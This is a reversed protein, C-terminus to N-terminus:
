IFNNINSILPNNSQNCKSIFTNTRKSIIDKILQINTKSHLKSTKYYFPKNLILKLIKNQTTQLTRLHINACNGWVPSAYLLIPHFINKFILLKNNYNLKSKRNIFPYLIKIYKLTKLKTNQVHKSFILKKDLEIGLYKISDSWSIKHNNLQLQRHPLFRTTRRKTFFISKSKSENIKIKWKFYYKSIKQFSKELTNIIPRPHTNCTIINTDDAFQALTTNQPVKLDCTYINYLIPSLSSGQPLGAPIQFETSKEDYIQVYFYRTSLFSKIMKILPMPFNHKLLKHILGDHWTTDYAKENDLSIMGTSKHRLMNNKILKTVRYLQHTTSHAKRFGFQHNPIINNNDVHKNIRNLLVKELLKSISSLLSIPRYSSPNTPDKNEKQIAIIKAIKWNKPFYSQLICANILKTILVLARFPLKKLIFNQIRDQGPSKRSKL